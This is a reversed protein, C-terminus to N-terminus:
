RFSTLGIFCAAGKPTVLGGTRGFPSGMLGGQLPAGLEQARAAATGREGGVM